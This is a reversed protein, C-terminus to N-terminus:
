PNAAKCATDQADCDAVTFNQGGANAADACASYFNSLKLFVYKHQVDCARGCAAAKNLFTSGDVSFPRASNNQTVAPPPGGLNGASTCVGTSTSATSTSTTTETAKAKQTKDGKKDGKKDAKKTAKAAAATTTTAEKGAGAVSCYMLGVRECLYMRLM